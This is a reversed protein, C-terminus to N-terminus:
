QSKVHEKNELTALLPYITNPEFHTGFNKHIKTIIKHGHMPQTSLSQLVILDLSGKALKAQVEKQISGM